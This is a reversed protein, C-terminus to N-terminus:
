AAKPKKPGLFVIEGRTPNIDSDAPSLGNAIRAIERVAHRDRFSPYPCNMVDKIQENVKEERQAVLEKPLSENFIAM